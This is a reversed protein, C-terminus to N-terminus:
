LRPKRSSDVKGCIFHLFAIDEDTGQAIREMAWRYPKEDAGIGSGTLLDHVREQLRSLQGPDVAAPTPLLDPNALANALAYAFLMVAQGLNLSPQPRALPIQSLLACHALEQNNLGHDERGFVLAARAISHRKAQLSAGLQEPTLHYRRQHRSRASTGAVLQCDAIASGLDPYRRAALLVDESGHALIRAAKERHRPEGVLRLDCFGMTKMARAAAGVNEARRPEVLVFAIEM